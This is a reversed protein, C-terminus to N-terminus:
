DDFNGEIYGYAKAFLGKNKGLGFTDKWRSM